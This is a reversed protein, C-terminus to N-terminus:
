IAGIHALAEDLTRAVGIPGPWDQHWREQVENLGRRKRNKNFKADGIVEILSHAGRYFVLLDPVGPQSLQHVTAGVQELGLIIESENDDRSARYKPIAM